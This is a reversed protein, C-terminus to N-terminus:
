ENTEEQSLLIELESYKLSAATLEQLFRESYEVEEIEFFSVFEIIDAEANEVQGIKDYALARRFYVFPYDPQDELGRNFAAIAEEHRGIEYLSWGLNYQTMMSVHGDREDLAEAEQLPALSAVPKGAMRLYAAHNIFEKHTSPPILRFSAQQDRLASTFNDLQFYAWARTQLYFAQQETELKTLALCKDLLELAVEYNHDRTSKHGYGCYYWQKVQGCGTLLFIVSLISIWKVPQQM